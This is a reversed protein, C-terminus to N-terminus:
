LKSLLTISKIVFFIIIEFIKKFHIMILCLIFFMHNEPPIPQGSAGWGVGYKEKVLKGLLREYSTSLDEDPAMDQLMQQKEAEDRAKMGHQKFLEEVSLARLDPLKANIMAAISKGVLVSWVSELHFHGIGIPINMVMSIFM